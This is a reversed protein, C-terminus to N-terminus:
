RYVNDTNNTVTVNSVKFRKHEEVQENHKNILFAFFGAITTDQIVAYRQNSDNLYALKDECAYKIAPLGDSKMEETPKLIRGEFEVKGTRYNEVKILTTLPKINNWAPNAINITLDMSSIGQLRQNISFHCKLGDIYPSHILTGKADEPGDYITVAYL